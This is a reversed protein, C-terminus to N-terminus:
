KDDTSYCWRLLVEISSAIYLLIADGSLPM